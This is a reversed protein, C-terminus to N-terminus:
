WELFNENGGSQYRPLAHQPAFKVRCKTEVGSRFFKCLYIIEEPLFRDFKSKYNIGAQVVQNNM